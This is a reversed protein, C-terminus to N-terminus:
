QPQASNNRQWTQSHPCGCWCLASAAPVGDLGIVRLGRLHSPSQFVDVGVFGRTWIPNSSLDQFMASSLRCYHEGTKKVDRQFLGSDCCTELLVCDDWQGSAGVSSSIFHKSLIIRVCTLFFSKVTGPGTDTQSYLLDVSSAM